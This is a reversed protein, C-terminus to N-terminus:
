DTARRAKGHNRKTARIREIEEYVHEADGIVARDCRVDFRYPREVVLENATLRVDTISEWPVFCQQMPRIIAMGADHIRLEPLWEVDTSTALWESDLLRDLRSERDSKRAGLRLSLGQLLVIVGWLGLWWMTSAGTIDGTALTVLGVIGLCGVGLGILRLGRNPKLLPVLVIPEEPTMARTYRTRAMTAIAFAVLLTLVTGIGAGIATPQPIRPIVLAAVTIGAFVISPLFSMALRQWRQGLREPLGPVYSSAIGGAILGVTAASPISGIITAASAEVAAAVTISAAVLVAAVYAGVAAMFGADPTGLAEPLSSAQRRRDSM